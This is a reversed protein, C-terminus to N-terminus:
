NEGKTMRYEAKRSVASIAETFEMILQLSFLVFGAFIVLQPLFLPLKLVDSLRWEVFSIWMLRFTASTIFLVVTIYIPYLCVSLRGRNIPSLHEDILGVAIHGRVKQTYALAFATCLTMTYSPMEIAWSVPSRFLYRALTECVTLIVIIFMAVAAIILGAQELRGITAGIM